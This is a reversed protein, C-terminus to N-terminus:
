SLRKGQMGQYLYEAGAMDEGEPGSSKLGIDLGKAPWLSSGPSCVTISFCTTTLLYSQAVHVDAYRRPFRLPQQQLHERPSDKVELLQDPYLFFVYQEAFIKSLRLSKSFYQELM